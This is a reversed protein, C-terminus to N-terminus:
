PQNEPTTAAPAELTLVDDYIRREWGDVRGPRGPDLVPFVHVPTLTLTFGGADRRAVDVELHGYHRGGSELVAGTWREPAHDDVVFLQRDNFLGPQPAPLADGGIPVSYYHVGDAFSHEYVDDHGSIVARVGHAAFLPALSRLPLGSHESARVGRGPPLGARGTTFPAHHLQVLTIAGRDRAAALERELWAHQESGPAWDPIHPAADRDLLVNTDDPGGDRGGCTTDLTLLTVPGFDVRHYRGEHREDAAGNPPHEFYTLFRRSALLTAEQSYGGLDLLPDDSPPGGYIDHDGFAAVIPVRSAFSGFVGANYRWFEDWDRQEGGSGVLDGVICALVPNGARLSEAARAAMLALNTRYGTSEDVPYRDAWAPRPDGAQRAPPPWEAREDRDEPRATGCAHFLLRVGGGRGVTGPRPSTTLVAKVTEGSQAVEYPYSTAPDLGTVRVSHLFPPSEHQMQIVETAQYELDRCLVPQSTFTRGACTVTGPDAQESFWRVTMADPAPNQLYPRVRFQVPVPGDAARAAAAISLAGLVVVTAPRSARARHSAM